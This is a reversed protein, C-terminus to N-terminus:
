GLLQKLVIANNHSEDKAAYLLTTTAHESTIRRLTDLAGSDQLEALYRRSFEDFREPIHNFWKRLENSPAAEKLWLDIQAEEKRMGRPWLRDVLIRYGDSPDAKLYVRKTQIMTQLNTKDDAFILM